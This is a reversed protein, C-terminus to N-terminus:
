PSPILRGNRCRSCPASRRCCLDPVFRPRVGNRGLTRSQCCRRVGDQGLGRVDRFLRSRDVHLPDRSHQFRESSADPRSSPCPCIPSSRVQHFRKSVEERMVKNRAEFRSLVDAQARTALIFVPALGLGVLTLEWGVAFAWTLGIIIMSTVVVLQGAVTGVLTRADESDKILSHVLSSTTNAPKDFFTKDQKLVLGLGTTRLAAIWGMACRELFYFKLFGGVGELLALLLILLSTVLVVPGNNPNGLNAMLKALLTSFIPTCAGVGVCLILGSWFLIKNPITPYFRTLMQRTSMTVLAPGSDDVTITLTGGESKPAKTGEKGLLEGDIMTKHKIRVGKARRGTATEAARDLAGFSMSSDPRDRSSFHSYDYGPPPADAMQTSRHSSGQRPLPPRSTSLSSRNEQREVFVASAHRAKRLDQSWRGIDAAPGFLAGGFVNTTHDPETNEIRPTYLDQREWFETDSLVESDLEEVDDKDEDLSPDGAQTHALQHFPGDVNAELDERYGQEVVRGDTMVYVFDQPDVPTLDHTIIITTKNMRWLKVAESVLLRSTADLASTAEDASALLTLEDIFPFFLSRM